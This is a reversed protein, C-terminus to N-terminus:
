KYIVQLRVETTRGFRDQASLTEINYGPSLLTEEKFAGSENTFIKGGNLTLYSINRAVGRIEISSSSFSEGDQPSEVTITPGEVINKARFAAYGAIAAIIAVITWIKLLSRVRKRDTM